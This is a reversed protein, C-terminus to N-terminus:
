IDRSILYILKMIKKGFDKKQLKLVLWFDIKSILFLKLGGFEIERFFFKLSNKM